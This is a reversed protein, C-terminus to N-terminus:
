GNCMPTPSTMVLSCCHSTSNSPWLTPSTATSMHLTDEARLVRGIRQHEPEQLILAILVSSDVIMM